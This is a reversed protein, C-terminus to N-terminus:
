AHQAWYTKIWRWLARPHEFLRVRWYGWGQSHGYYVQVWWRSPWLTALLWQLCHRHSISGFRRLPWGQYPTAPLLSSMRGAIKVKQLVEKSWPTLAHFASLAPRLQPVSRTLRQWDIDAHHKEVMTVCDAVHILRFPEYTLPSRFGHLYVHQLMDELCLTRTTVSGVEMTISRAWLYDFSWVPYDPHPPFLGRHLEITVPLGEMTKVAPRLHYYDAPVDEGGEHGYGLSFLLAEARGADETKILLDIDRMPRLAPDGYVLNALAIGKVLLVEVAEGRFAQLIKLLSRNRIANAQRSRLYLSHLRRRCHEPIACGAAALHKHLLPALGQEEAERLLDGWSLRHKEFDAILVRLNAYVGECGVDRACCGMITRIM